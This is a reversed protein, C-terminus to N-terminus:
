RTFRDRSRISVNHAQIASRCSESGPTASAIYLSKLYLSKLYLSKLYLSKLYLSKLYLSKLYLSKLYLSKLRRLASPRVVLRAITGPSAYSRVAALAYTSSWGGKEVSKSGAKTVVKNCTSAGLIM